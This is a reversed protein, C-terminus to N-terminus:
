LGLAEWEKPKKLEWFCKEFLDPTIYEPKDTAFLGITTDMYHQLIQIKRQESELVEIISLKDYESLIMTPSNTYTAFNDEKWRLQILKIVDEITKM